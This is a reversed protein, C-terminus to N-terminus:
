LLLLLSSDAHILRLLSPVPLTPLTTYHSPCEAMLLTKLRACSSATFPDDLSCISPCVRWSMLMFLLLYIVSKLIYIRPVVWPGPASVMLEKWRFVTSHTLILVVLELLMMMYSLLKPVRISFLMNLLFVM